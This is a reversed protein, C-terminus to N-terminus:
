MEAGPEVVGDHSEFMKYTLSTEGKLKFYDMPEYGNRVMTWFPEPDDSKKSLALASFDGSTSRFRVSSSSSLAVVLFSVSYIVVLSALWSRTPPHPFSTKRIDVAGNGGLESFSLEEVM